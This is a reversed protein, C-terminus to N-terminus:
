MKRDNISWRNLSFAWKLNLFLTARERENNVPEPGVRLVSVAVDQEEVDLSQDRLEQGFLVVLHRWSRHLNLPECILNTL